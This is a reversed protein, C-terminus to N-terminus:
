KPTEKVWQVFDTGVLTARTYGNEIYKCDLYAYTTIACIVIAGVVAMLTCWLTCWMANDSM